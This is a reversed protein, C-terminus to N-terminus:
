LTGYLFFIREWLAKDCGRFIVNCPDPTQNLQIKIELGLNTGTFGRRRNPRISALGLWLFGNSPLYLNIHVRMLFADSDLFSFFLTRTHARAESGKSNLAM